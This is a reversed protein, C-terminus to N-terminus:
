GNVMLPTVVVGGRCYAGCDAKSSRVMFTDAMWVIWHTTGDIASVAAVPLRTVWLALRTLARLLLRVTHLISSMGTMKRYTSSHGGDEVSELTNGVASIIRGAETGIRQGKAVKPVQPLRWASVELWPPGPPPVEDASVM